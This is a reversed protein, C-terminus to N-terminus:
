YAGAVGNEVIERCFGELAFSIEAGCRLEQALNELATVTVAPDGPILLQKLMERGEPWLQITLFLFMGFFVLGLGFRVNRKKEGQKDGIGVPGYDVRYGM